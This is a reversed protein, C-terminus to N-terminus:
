NCLMDENLNKSVTTRINKRALKGRSALGSLYIINHFNTYYGESIVENNKSPLSFLM